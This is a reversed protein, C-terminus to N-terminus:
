EAKFTQDVSLEVREDCAMTAFYRGIRKGDRKVYVTVEWGHIGSNYGFDEDLVLDDYHLGNKAIKSVYFLIGYKVTATPMEPCQTTRDRLLPIGYVIFVAFLFVVLMITGIVGLVWKLLKRM